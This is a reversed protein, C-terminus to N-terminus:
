VVKSLTLPPPVGQGGGGFGGSFSPYDKRITNDLARQSFIKRQLSLELFDEDLILGTEMIVLNLLIREKEFENM